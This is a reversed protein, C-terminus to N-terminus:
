KNRRGLFFALGAAALIVLVALAALLSAPNGSVFIATSGDAGGISGLSIM